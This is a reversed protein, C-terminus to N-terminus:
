EGKNETDSTQQEKQWQILERTEKQLGILTKLREATYAKDGNEDYVYLGDEMKYFDYGFIPHDGFEEVNHNLNPEKVYIAYPVEQIDYKQILIKGIESRSSVFYVEADPEEALVNMIMDHVKVCDPCNYKYFIIVSGLPPNETVQKSQEIYSTNKLDGVSRLSEVQEFADYAGYKKATTFAWAYLVLSILAVACSVINIANLIRLVWQLKTAKASKRTYQQVKPKGNKDLTDVCVTENNELDSRM